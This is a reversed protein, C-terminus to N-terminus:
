PIVDFGLLEEQNVTGRYAIFYGDSKAHLEDGVHIWRDGKTGEKMNIWLAWPYLSSVHVTLESTQTCPHFVTVEGWTDELLAIDHRVTRHGDTLGMLVMMNANDLVEGSFWKGALALRPEVRWENDVRCHIPENTEVLFEVVVIDKTVANAQAVLLNTSTLLGFLVLIAVVNMLSKRLSKDM